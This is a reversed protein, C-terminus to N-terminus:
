EEEADEACRNEQLESDRRDSEDATRAQEIQRKLDSVMAELDSRHRRIQDWEPTKRLIGRCHYPLRLVIYAAMLIFYIAVLTEGPMNLSAAYSAILASLTMLVLMQLISFQCGASTKSATEDPPPTELM